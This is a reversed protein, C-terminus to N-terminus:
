KNMSLSSKFESIEKTQDIIGQKAIRKLEPNMGHSIEATFMKIASSHHPIMMMAYDKDANGTMQMGKMNDQMENMATSLEGHKGMDMTMPKLTKLIDKLKNQENKQDTIIKNAVAKLVDNKGTKLEEESMDIAGLHHEIM